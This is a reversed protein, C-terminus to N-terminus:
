KIKRYKKSKNKRYKKTNNKFIKSKIYKNRKTKVKKGGFISGGLDAEQDYPIKGPIYDLDQKAGESLARQADPGELTKDESMATQAGPVQDKSKFYGFPDLVSGISSLISSTTKKEEVAVPKAEVAVPKEDILEPLDSYARERKSLDSSSSQGESPSQGLGFTRSAADAAGRAMNAASGVANAASGVANAAGRVWGRGRRLANATREEAVQKVLKDNKSISLATQISSKFVNYYEIKECNTFTHYDSHAFYTLIYRIIKEFVTEIILSTQINELNIRDLNIIQNYDNEYITFDTFERPSSSPNLSNYMIINCKGDRIKTLKATRYITKGSFYTFTNMIKLFIHLYLKRPLDNEMTDRLIDGAQAAERARREGRTFDKNGFVNYEFKNLLLFLLKDLTRSQISQRLVNRLLEGNDGYNETVYRELIILYNFIDPNTPNNIMAQLDDLSIILGNIYKIPEMPIVRQETIVKRGILKQLQGSVAGSGKRQIVLKQLQNLPYRELASDPIEQFNEDVQKLIAYIDLNQDFFTHKIIYMTNGYLAGPKIVYDGEGPINGACANDFIHKNNFENAEDIDLKFLFIYRRPGDRSGPQIKNLKEAINQFIEVNEKELKAAREQEQREEQEEREKEKQLEEPSKNSQLRARGSVSSNPTSSNPTSSKSTPSKSTSSKSTPSGKVEGGGCSAKTNKCAEDRSYYITGKDLYITYDVTAEDLEEPPGGSSPVFWIKGGGKQGEENQGLKAKAKAEQEATPGQLQRELQKEVLWKDYSLGPEFDTDKEGRKYAKFDEMRLQEVRAEKEARAKAASAIKDQRAKKDAALKDESAYNQRLTDSIKKEFAESRSLQEEVKRNVYEEPNEGLKNGEPTKEEPKMAFLELKEQERRELDEKSLIVYYCKNILNSLTGQKSFECPEYKIDTFNDM